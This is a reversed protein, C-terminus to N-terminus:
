VPWGKTFPSLMKGNKTKLTISVLLLILIRVVPSAFGFKGSRGKVQRTLREWDLSQSNGNGNGNGGSNNKKDRHRRRRRDRQAQKQLDRKHQADSFYAVKSSVSGEEEDQSPREMTMTATSGNSNVEGQEQDWGQAYSYESSNVHNGQTSSWQEPTTNEVPLGELYIQVREDAFYEKLSTQYQSLDRFHPFVETHDGSSKVKM